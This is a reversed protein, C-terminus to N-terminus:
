TNSKGSDLIVPEIKRFKTNSYQESLTIRFTQYLDQIARCLLEGDATLEGKGQHTINNRIRYLYNVVSWPDSPDSIRTSFNGPDRSEHLPRYNSAHGDIFIDGFGQQFNQDNKAFKERAEYNRHWPHAWRLSVYREILSWLLLYGMQLRFFHYQDQLQKNEEFTEQVVSLGKKFYSRTIWPTSHCTKREIVEMEYDVSPNIQLTNVSRGDLTETKTWSYHTMPEASAIEAYADVSASETFDIVHGEIRKSDLGTLIPMGDDIILRGKVYQWQEARDRSESVYERIRRYGLEDRRFIGYAFFRLDPNKPLASAHAVDEKVDTIAVDRVDGVDLNPIYVSIDDITARGDDHRGLEEVTVEHVEGVNM